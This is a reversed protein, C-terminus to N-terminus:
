DAFRIRPDLYGYLIDILLNMAVFVVCYLLTLNQVVNFDRDVMAAVMTKGLGPTAFAQEVAVSGGILGALMLGTLTLVPLLANPLAHRVLVFMERLGKARATRVYDDRFVELLSSRVLRAIVAAMGTGLVIAPGIIIQLNAWPDDWLQAAVIPSKYGFWTISAVVVVMGLWFNPIALFLVTFSSAAADSVSQPRLASLIGVPLGMIWALIISLVGIEASIPLRRGIVQLIDDKRFLSDGLSGTFIDKLWDGYQVVYPRDLGLDHMIRAKQAETFRQMDRPDYYSGLPDHPLVRMLAFILVTVGFIAPIAYLLRKAIYKQM